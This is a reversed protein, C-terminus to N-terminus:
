IAMKAFVRCTTSFAKQLENIPLQIKAVVGDHCLIDCDYRDHLIACESVTLNKANLESIEEYNLINKRRKSKKQVSKQKRNM